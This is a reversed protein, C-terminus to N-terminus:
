RPNDLGRLMERKYIADDVQRELWSRQVFIKAGYVSKRRTFLKKILTLLKM